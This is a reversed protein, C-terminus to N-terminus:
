YGIHIHDDHGSVFFGPAHKGASIAWQTYNKGDYKSKLPGIVQKPWLGADNLKKKNKVIWPMLRGSIKVNGIDIGHGTWHRSERKGIIQCSAPPGTKPDGGVCRSHRGVLSLIQIPAIENAVLTNLLGCIKPDIQVPTSDKRIISGTEFGKRDNPRDVIIKKRRILQIVDKCEKSAIVGTGPSEDCKDAGGGILQNYIRMMDAAGKRAEEEQKANSYTHYSNIYANVPDNNNRALAANFKHATAYISRKPDFRADDPHDEYRTPKANYLKGPPWEIGIADKKGTFEKYGTATDYVFQGLGAASGDGRFYNHPNWSSERQILAILIARDGQLYQAAADDIWPLYEESVNVSGLNLNACNRLGDSADQNLKKGVLAGLGIFPILFLGVGLLIVLVVVLIVPVVFGRKM